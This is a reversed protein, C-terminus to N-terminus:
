EDVKKEKEMQAMYDSEIIWEEEDTTEGNINKPDSATNTNDRQKYANEFFSLIAAYFEAFIGIEIKTEEKEKEDFRLKTNEAKGGLNQNRILYMIANHLERKRFETTIIKMLRSDRFLGVIDIVIKDGTSGDYCCGTILIDTLPETRSMFGDAIKKIKEAEILKWDKYIHVIDKTDERNENLALKLVMRWTKNNSKRKFTVGLENYIALVNQVITFAMFNINNIMENKAKDSGVYVLPFFSVNLRVPKSSDMSKKIKNIVENKFPESLQCHRQALYVPVECDDQGMFIPLLSLIAIVTLVKYIKSKMQDCGTSRLRVTGINRLIELPECYCLFFFIVLPPRTVIWNKPIKKVGSGALDPL